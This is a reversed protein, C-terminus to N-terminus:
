AIYEEVMRDFEDFKYNTGTIINNFYETFLANYEEETVLEDNIRYFPEFDAGTHTVGASFSIVDENRQLLGDTMGYYSSSGLQPAGSVIYSFVGEYGPAKFLSGGYVADAYSVEGNRFTYVEHRIQGFMNGLWGSSIFLEPSGDGDIDYLFMSEAWANSVWSEHNNVADMYMKRYADIWSFPDNIIRKSSYINWSGNANKKLTYIHEGEYDIGHGWATMTKNTVLYYIDGIKYSDIVEHEFSSFGGGPYFSFYLMGRENDWKHTRSNQIPPGLNRYDYDNISFNPNIYECLYNEVTEPYFWYESYDTDSNIQMDDAGIPFSPYFFASLLDIENIDDFEIYYDNLSEHMRALVPNHLVYDLISEIEATSLEERRLESETLETEAPETISITADIDADTTMTGTLMTIDDLVPASDVQPKLFFTGVIVAVIAIIGAIVAIAKTNMAITPVNATSGPATITSSQATLSSDSKIGNDDAEANRRHREAQKEREHEEWAKRQKMEREKHQETECLTREVAELTKKASELDEETIKDNVIAKKLWCRAEKLYNEAIALNNSNDVVDVKKHLAERDGELSNRFNEIHKLNCELSSEAYALIIKNALVHYELGLKVQPCPYWEQEASKKLWYIIEETRKSEDEFEIKNGFKDGNPSYCLAVYFQAEADGKEAARMFYELAKNLGGQKAGAYYINGLTYLAGVFDGDASKKYWEMACDLPTKNHDDPPIDGWQIADGLRFQAEADGAIAKARIEEFNM